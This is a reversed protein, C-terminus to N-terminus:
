SIFVAGVRFFPWWLQGLIASLEAFTIAM